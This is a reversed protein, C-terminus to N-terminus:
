DTTKLSQVLERLAVEARFLSGGERDTLVHSRFQRFAILDVLLENAVSYARERAVNKMNARTMM